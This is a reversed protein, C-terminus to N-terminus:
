SCSEYFHEWGDGPMSPPEPTTGFEGYKEKLDYDFDGPGSDPDSLRVDRDLQGDGSNNLIALDPYADDGYNAIRLEQVEGHDGIDSHRADASSLDSRKLPGPPVGRGAGDLTTGAPRSSSTSSWTWPATTRSTPSRPPRSRARRRASSNASPSSRASRATRPGWQITMKTGTHGPNSIKDLNGDGDLDGVLTTADALCPGAAAAAKGSRGAGDSSGAASAQYGAVTLTM